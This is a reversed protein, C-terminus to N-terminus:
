EEVTLIRRIEHLDTEGAIVKDRADERLTIRQNSLQVIERESVDRGIGARVADDLEFLEFVGLRGQYGTRRCRICGVPEYVMESSCAEGLWKFDDPTVNRTRRCCPCLRRVLRQAVAAQLTAAVMYPQCGMDMLRTVTGAATNTHLTSLVLHGTVSARLAIDATEKDRIEGVMLVDPDHRLLSRLASSFSVKGFDDVEIQSAGAISYEVPDEVTMVNLSPKVIRRLAASLTTSKGSGTPGTLLILGSPRSILREFREHMVRSFGLDDLTLAKVETGLLRLTAREGHKTPVTAMRIDFQRDDAESLAYLFSGDQSERNEAIDLRALVKLRSLVAQALPRDIGQRVFQLGGDVRVRIGYGEGHPEIHIDSARRVYAQRMMAHVFAVANEPLAAESVSLNSRGLATELVPGLAAPDALALQVKRDFVQQLVSKLSADNLLEVADLVWIVEGSSVHLPLVRKREMLARPVRQILAQDIRLEDEDVFRVDREDALAQYVSASPLRGRLTVADVPNAGHRRVDQRVQEATSPDILGLRLMPSLVMEVTLRM